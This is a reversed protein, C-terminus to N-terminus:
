FDVFLLANKELQKYSLIGKDDERVVAFQEKNVTFKKRSKDSLEFVLYYVHTTEVVVGGVNKEHFKSIVTASDTSLPIAKIVKEQARELKKMTYNNFVLAGITYVAGVILLFIGREDNHTWWAHIILIIIVIFGIVSILCGGVFVGDKKKLYEKEM